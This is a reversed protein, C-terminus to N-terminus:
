KLWALMIRRAKGICQTSISLQFDAAFSPSLPTTFHILSRSEKGKAAGFTLQAVQTRGYKTRRARSSPVISSNLIRHLEIRTRTAFFLALFSGVVASSPFSLLMEWPSNHPVLSVIRPLGRRFLEPLERKFYSKPHKAEVLFTWNRKKTETFKQVCIGLDEIQRAISLQAGYVAFEAQRMRIDTPLALALASTVAHLQVLPLYALENNEHLRLLFECLKTLVISFSGITSQTRIWYGVNLASDLHESGDRLDGVIFYHLALRALPHVESSLMEELAACDLLTHQHDVRHSRLSVTLQKSCLGFNELVTQIQLQTEDFHCDNLLCMEFLKNSTKSRKFSCQTFVCDKIVLSTFDCGDFVVDYFECNQIVTDFFNCESFRTKSVTNLVFGTGVFKTRSFESNIIGNDKFDCRSFDVNETAFGVLQSEIINCRDPVTFDSISGELQVRRLEHIFVQDARINSLNFRGGEHRVSEKGLPLATFKGDVDM